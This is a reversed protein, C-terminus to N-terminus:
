HKSSGWWEGQLYELLERGAEICSTEEGVAKIYSTEEGAEIYSTEEGAEVYSTEEGAAKHAAPPPTDAGHPLFRPFVM